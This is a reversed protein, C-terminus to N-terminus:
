SVLSIPDNSKFLRSKNYSGRELQNNLRVQFLYLKFNIAVYLSLLPSPVGIGKPDVKM